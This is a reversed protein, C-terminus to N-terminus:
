GRMRGEKRVIRGIQAQSAGFQIALKDQSVGGAAYLARIQEVQAATIKCRGHKEGFNRCDGARGRAHMDAINDAQTGVELHQPNCCARNDCKHRVVLDAAVPGHTLIYAMRHATTSYGKFTVRGYGKDNLEGRWLRCGQKNRRGVKKWFLEERRDM